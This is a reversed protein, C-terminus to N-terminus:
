TDLLIMAVLIQGLNHTVAGTVSVGVSSLKDTRKLLWMVLLSLVAGAVSYAFTMVNGFLLASLCLRVFSVLAAYKLGLGYLVYLIVVNPLGIKIGPVAVFIPPLLFEVYSLLLALATTISVFAIRQTNAQKQKM